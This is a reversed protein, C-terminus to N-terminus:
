GGAGLAARQADRVLPALWRWTARAAEPTLHAGDPRLSRDSRSGGPGDCVREAYPLVVAGDHRALEDALVENVAALREPDSEEGDSAVAEWEYCPVDLWLVPADTSERIRALARRVADRYAEEWAESGLVVREGDVDLDYLQRLGLAVVVADAGPALAEAWRQPWRPCEPDEEDVTHGTHIRAGIIDCRAHHAGSVRFPFGPPVDRLLIWAQSDGLVVLRDGPEPPSTPPADEDTAEPNAVRVVAGGEDPVRAAPAVTLAVVLAVVVVVGGSLLLAPRPLVLERRHVPREIGRHVVETLALSVALRAADLLAPSWTLRDPSMLVIVPWHVLYLTYSRHGLARMPRSGLVRALPGTDTRACGYVVMAASLATLAFGGRLYPGPRDAPLLLTCAGFAVLGGVGIWGAGRRLVPADRGSTLLLALLAGVLLEQARTDTGYYARSLDTAGDALHRMWLASAVAGAGLVLPLRRRGLALLGTVLFPWVLYFQEEIGLSWTHRLPSPNFSTFYSQATAIYRWNAVYFLTALGDGRLDPLEEARGVAATAVITGALVVLLAPALRRLRREFFHRYSIRGDRGHEVLLLSTILFGSLVLFGSVGTWGGDPATWGDLHYGVTIAIMLGRFGDLLPRHRLTVPVADSM